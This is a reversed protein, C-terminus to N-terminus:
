SSDQETESTIRGAREHTFGVWTDSYTFPASKM